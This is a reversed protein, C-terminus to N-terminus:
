DQSDQRHLIKIPVPCMDKAVESLLTAYISDGSGPEDVVMFVIPRNPFGDELPQLKGDVWQGAQLVAPTMTVVAFLAVALFMIKRSMEM